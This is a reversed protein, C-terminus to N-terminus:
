EREEVFMVRMWCTGLAIAIVLPFARDVASVVSMWYM